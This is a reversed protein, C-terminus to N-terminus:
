GGSLPGLEPLGRRELLAAARTRLVRETEESVSVVVEDAPCIARVFRASLGFLLAGGGPDLADSRARRHDCAGATSGRALTVPGSPEPACSSPRLQGRIHM